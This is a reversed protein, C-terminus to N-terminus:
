THFPGLSGRYVRRRVGGNLDSSFVIRKKYEVVVGCGIKSSGFDPRFSLVTM